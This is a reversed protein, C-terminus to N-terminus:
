TGTSARSRPSGRSAPATPLVNGPILFHATLMLVGTIGCIAALARTARDTM